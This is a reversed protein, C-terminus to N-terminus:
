VVIRVDGAATKYLSNLPLGAAVAAANDAHTPMQNLSAAILHIANHIPLLDKYLELDSTLPVVPLKISIAM